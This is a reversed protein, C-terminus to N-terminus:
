NNIIPMTFFVGNMHYIPWSQEIAAASPSHFRKNNFIIQNNKIEAYHIKGKFSKKLRLGNKLLVGKWYLGENINMINAEINVPIFVEAENLIKQSLRKLIDNETEDFSKRNAEIWKYVDIDIEIKKRKM